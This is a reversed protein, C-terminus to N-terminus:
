MWKELFSHYEGKLEQFLRHFTEYRDKLALNENKIIAASDSGLTAKDALDRDAMHIDHMLEDSVELQRIFQNQFHEVGKLVEEHNNKLVVEKLEKQFIGIESRTLLIDSKWETIEHHLETIPKKQEPM